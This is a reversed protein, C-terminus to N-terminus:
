PASASGLLQRLKKLGRYLLGVVAEESRDMLKAVEAMKLDQRLSRVDADSGEMRAQDSKAPSTPQSM